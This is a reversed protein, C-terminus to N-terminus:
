HSAVVGQIFALSRDLALRGADNDLNFQYEHPLKPEYNEPFFLRDVAVGKSLLSNALERSQPLLPDGNGASIFTPPFEATVYNLVSFPALYSLQLFNKSGSYAWMTTRVFHGFGGDFNVTNLDYPGCYLIVGRLQSQNIAPKIGVTEAYSRVSIMNALQAAIQAGASDGALIFKTPTVHLQAAHKVLYALAANVQRLPMPYQHGPALSYGVGITTYGESALIRLYNAVYEKGGSLWAGGHIWVITPLSRGTNVADAPYFVDLYADNDMPDYHKDHQGAVDVPLHRELAQMATEGGHNMIMRYFLAAPWPSVQLTMYVIAGLIVITGLIRLGLRM